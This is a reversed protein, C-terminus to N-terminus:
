QRIHTSSVDLELEGVSHSSLEFETDVRKLNASHGPYYSRLPYSIDMKFKSEIRLRGCNYRYIVVVHTGTIFNRQKTNFLNVLILM